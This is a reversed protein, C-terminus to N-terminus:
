KVEETRNSWTLRISDTKNDVWYTNYKERLEPMCCGTLTCQCFQSQYPCEYAFCRNFM